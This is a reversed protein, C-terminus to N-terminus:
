VCVNERLHPLSENGRLHCIGEVKKAELFFCGELLDDLAVMNQCFAEMRVRASICLLTHAEM